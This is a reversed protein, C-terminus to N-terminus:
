YSSSRDWNEMQLLQSIVSDLHIQQEMIRMGLLLSDHRPCTSYRFRWIRRRCSSNGNSLRCKIDVTAAAWTPDAAGNNEYWRITDDDTSASVIDIDGDGDMDGLHVDNTVRLMFMTM